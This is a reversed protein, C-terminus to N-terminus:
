KEKILGFQELASKLVSRKYEWAGDLMQQPTGWSCRSFERAHADLNFTADPSVRALFFYQEQGDYASFRDGPQARWRDLLEQPWEYRMPNPLSAVFEYHPPSLGIEEHLERRAAMEPTEGEDIGGQVTQIAGPLDERECLLVRGNGDTVIVAANPRFTSM